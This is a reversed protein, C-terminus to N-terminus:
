EVAGFLPTTIEALQGALVKPDDGFGREAWWLICNFVIGNWSMIRLERVEDAVDHGRNIQRLMEMGMGAKLLLPIKERHAYVAQLIIRWNAGVDEGMARRVDDAIAEIDDALVDAARRNSVIRAAGHM